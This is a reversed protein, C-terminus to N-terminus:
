INTDRIEIIYSFFYTTLFLIIVFVKKTGVIFDGKGPPSGSKGRGQGLRVHGRCKGIWSQIYLHVIADTVQAFGNAAQGRGAADLGHQQHEAVVTVVVADVVQDPPHVEALGRLDEERVWWLDVRARIGALRRVVTGPVNAPLPSHLWLDGAM